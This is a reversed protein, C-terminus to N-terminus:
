DNIEYNKIKLSDYNGYVIVKKLLILLMQLSIIQQNKSLMDNEIMEEPSAPKMGCYDRKLVTEFPINFEMGFINIPDCKADRIQILESIISITKHMNMKGIKEILNPKDDSFVDSYGLILQADKM